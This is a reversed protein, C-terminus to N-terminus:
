TPAPIKVQWRPVYPKNRLIEVQLINGMIFRHTQSHTMCHGYFYLEDGTFKFEYPEVNRHITKNNDTKKMYLLHVLVGLSAAWQIAERSTLNGGKNLNEALTGLAYENYEFGHPTLDLADEKKAM